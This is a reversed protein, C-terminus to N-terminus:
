PPWPLMRRVMMPTIMMARIRLKRFRDRISMKQCSKAVPAIMMAATRSSASCFRTPRPQRWRASSFRGHVRQRLAAEAFRADLQRQEAEAARREALQEDLHGLGVGFRSQLRSPVRADAVEVGRGPVPPALGLVAEAAEEVALRAGLEHQRGLDAAHELRRRVRVPEILAEPRAAQLEVMDEVVAVVRDHPGVLVAHLAEAHVADIQQDDVVEVEPMVGGLGLDLGIQALQDAAAPPRELLQAAAALDLRDAGADVLEAHHRAEEVQEVDVEEQHGQAVRQHLVVRELALQGVALPAVDADDDAAHEGGADGRGPGHGAGLVVVGVGRGLHQVLDSADLRHALAVAHRQWAAASCNGNPWGLTAETM